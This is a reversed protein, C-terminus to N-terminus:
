RVLELLEVPASLLQILRQPPSRFPTLCFDALVVQVVQQIAVEVVELLLWINL